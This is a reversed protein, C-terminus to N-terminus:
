RGTFKLRWSFFLQKLQTNVVKVKWVSSLAGEPEGDAGVRVSVCISVRMHAVMHTGEYPCALRTGASGREAPQLHEESGGTCNPVTTGALTATSLSQSKLSFGRRTVM